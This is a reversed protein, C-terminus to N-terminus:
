SKLSKYSSIVQEVNMISSLFDAESLGYEEYHHFYAKYSFMRWAKAMAKDVCSTSLQGNNALLATKDYSLFLNPNTWVNIRSSSPVWSAYPLVPKHLYNIDASECERGRLILLNSLSVPPITSYNTSINNQGYM